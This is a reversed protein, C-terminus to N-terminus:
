PCFSLYSLFNIDYLYSLYSFLDLLINIIGTILLLYLYRPFPTTLQLLSPLSTAPNSASISRQRQALLRAKIYGEGRFAKLFCNNLTDKLSVNLVQKLLDKINLLNGRGVICIDNVFILNINKISLYVQVLVGIAKIQTEGEKCYQFILYSTM